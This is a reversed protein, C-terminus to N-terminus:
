VALFKAQIADNELVERGTGTYGITGKIMIYVRDAMTCTFPLNRDVLIVAIGERHVVEILEFIAKAMIPSLGESPEDILILDPEGMLTRVLTLMQQEGGSLNSGLTGDREALQPFQRYAREISWKPPEDNKAGTKLGMILNERVTLEPFIRREEPVYGIGLRAIRYPSLLRIDRGKFRVVGERAQVIGMISKLVTSKGVGNRGLIAIMEGRAVELNIGDLVHSDDYYTHLNNVELLM